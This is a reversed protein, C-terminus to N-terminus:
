LTVKNALEVWKLWSEISQWHLECRSSNLNAWQVHTETRQVVQRYKGDRHWKSNIGLGRM